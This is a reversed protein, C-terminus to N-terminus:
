KITKIIEYIDLPKEAIYRTGAAEHEERDGYGFICGITDIGYALAGETDYKRDGVMVATDGNVDPFMDIIYKIVDAKTQRTEDLTNGAVFDFYSDLNFHELIKSAYEEPKSTALILTYGDEKLRGLVEPIDDYVANEFIGQATFRERYYGLAAVAEDHTLGHFEEFSKILPPGIYINLESIDQVDKGYHALAYNVSGTIGLAPDTLTGDLDFLIFKLM